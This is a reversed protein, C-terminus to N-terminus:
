PVAIDDDLAQESGAPALGRRTPLRGLMLYSGHLAAIVAVVWALLRGIVLCRELATSYVPLAEEVQALGGAMEALTRDEGDLRVDLGETLAPLLAAFEGSLGEVQERAAEYEARHEILQDLQDRAARLLAAAGSLGSQVTPWGAVAADISKRSQRLAGAVEKLRGTRRLAEALDGTLRPLEEGLRAAQEPLQRLLREAEEQRELATALTRRTAGVTQRSEAVAAQIRPLEKSLTEIEQGMAAVGAAVKRMDASVEAGRPWFPRNRVSPTLGNLTVVPYSYGAAREALRAAEAVVGEAGETAQRLAALRRPDLAAHLAGLGADFRELGDHLARIPKLDPPLQKVVEAFRRASAQLRGSAADLDAAATTAAPVVDRELFDATAGLGAGLAGLAEPALAGALRDLGDAARGTADRVTRVTDFNVRSNRVTTALTRTAAGLRAATEPLRSRRLEGVQARLSRVQAGAATTIRRAGAFSRRVEERGPLALGLLILAVAITMEIFGLLPFIHRRM